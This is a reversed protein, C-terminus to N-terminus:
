AQATSVRFADVRTVQDSVDVRTKGDPALAEQATDPLTVRVSTGRGPTTEVRLGGALAAVRENVAALGIHGELLAQRMRGEPIGCGDDTVELTVVGPARWVSLRIETAQAHKGANSLLERGLAFLMQRHPIDSDPEIEVRVEVTADGPQRRAIQDLAAGLGAHDLV